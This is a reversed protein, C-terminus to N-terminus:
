AGVADATAQLPLHLLVGKGNEHALSALTKAHPADPLVAFTVAGPLAIAREGAARGYGLDDIIIAIRPRANEASVASLQCLLFVLAAAKATIKGYTFGRM